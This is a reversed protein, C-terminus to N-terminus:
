FFYLCYFLSIEIITNVKPIFVPKMQVETEDEDDSYDDSDTEEDIKSSSM